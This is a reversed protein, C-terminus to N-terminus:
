IGKGKNEIVKLINAMVKENAQVTSTFGKIACEPGTFLEKIMQVAFTCNNNPSMYPFMIACGANYGSEGSGLFQLLLGKDKNPIENKFYESNRIFTKLKGDYHLTIGKPVFKEGEEYAAMVYMDINKVNKCSKMINEYNKVASKGSVLCDDLIVLNLEKQTKSYAKLSNWGSIVKIDPNITKYIDTIIGYSKQPDPVYIVAGKELKPAITKNFNMLIREIRDYTYIDLNKELYKTLLSKIKQFDKPNQQLQPCRKLIYKDIAGIQDLHDIANQFVGNSNKIGFTHRWNNLIRRSSGYKKSNLLKVINYECLTKQIQTKILDSRSIFTKIEPTSTKVVKSSNKLIAGVHKACPKVIGKAIRPVRKVINLMVQAVM